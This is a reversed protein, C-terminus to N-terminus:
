SALTLAPERVMSMIDWVKKEEEQKAQEELKAQQQQEQKLREATQRLIEENKEREEKEARQNAEEVAMKLEALLPLHGTLIAQLIAM